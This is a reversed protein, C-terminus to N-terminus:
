DSTKGLVFDSLPVRGLYIATKGEHSSYYSILAHDKTLVIGPYSTDGGSPLTGMKKFKGADDLIGYVTQTTAGYERTSMLWRGDPLQEMDPGGLRVNVDNWNWQTYPPKSHGLSGVRSENRVVMWMQDGRFRITSENPNGPVGLTTVWEYHVGDRTKVLQAATPKKDPQYVVGYGTGDEAWSVRWLWDVPGALPSDFQIVQQDTFTGEPEAFTVRCDRSILRSGEYKSGAFLVMLRGDPHISMKPDRLDIGPEELAVLENWSQGDDNSVIIQIRGDDGPKQPVHGNGVRFACYLKGNWQILDTFASHPVADWIKQSDEAEAGRLGGLSVSWVILLTFILRSM